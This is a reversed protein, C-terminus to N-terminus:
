CDCSGWTDSRSRLTTTTSRSSCTARAWGRPMTSWHPSPRIRGCGPSTLARIEGSGTSAAPDPETAPEPPFCCVNAPVRRVSAPAIRGVANM